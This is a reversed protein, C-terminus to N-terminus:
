NKLPKWESGNKGTVVWMLSRAGDRIERTVTEPREPRHETPIAVPKFSIGRSGLVIQAVISARRMHYDSTILYVEDIDRAELKDVLTTFNTVTDVAQYDLQWQENPVQAQDFVWEAYEPNSGSSVWIKVDPHSKAFQAAFQEREPAGGLVLALSPTLFQQQYHLYALSAFPTAILLLGIWLKTKIPKTKVPQNRAPQNRAPKNRASEASSNVPSKATSSKATSKTPFKLQNGYDSGGSDHRLMFQGILAKAKARTVQMPQM